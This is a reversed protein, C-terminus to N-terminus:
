GASAQPAPAGREAGRGTAGARGAGPLRALWSRLAGEWRAADVNWLRTHHGEAFEVYTVLDPRRRGLKASARYPVMADDTSHYLLVPVGLEEARDVLELRDLPIPADVGVLPRALPSEILQIALRTVWKPMHLLRGQHSLTARWSVVPSELVMGVVRRRLNSELLAQLVTAGGMSWGVLVFRKAGHREAAWSMAADVDRWETWGLGFRGDASRPAGPDNRYSIVLSNWGAEDFLEVSRLPETMVAARGHVHIAWDGRDPDAPFLWAPAPGLETPVEVARWPLGVDDPGRQPSSAVRVNTGRELPAGEDRSFRRTVTRATREVVPGLLARGRGDAFVLSYTGDASSELTRPLRITGHERDVAQVRLPERRRTPPTVVARAMLVSATVGASGVALLAAGAGLALSSVAIRVPSPRREVM